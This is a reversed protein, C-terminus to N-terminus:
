SSPPLIGGLFSSFLTLARQPQYSPVTHGAGRVTILLLGKYAELYGGVEKNLYWPRWSTEIPLNLANISYRSSTVPVVADTDGCVRDYQKYIEVVGILNDLPELLMLAFDTISAEIECKQFTFKSKHAQRYVWLRQGNAILYKIIPLITDPSDNWRTLVDSCFDWSTPKVHFAKQVASDNLYSVIIYKWCPDFVDISGTGSANRLDPNLCIPAYINYIDINGTENFAKTMSQNCMGTSSDNVFNCYKFVADHTADSNIAHTWWHDYRGKACTEDDIWANGIAIGKMKITTQNTNKNNRLITYALQPVYHGAYSEGTIYFDRTKYQPFRELWNVIFIYADAATNKDGANDYDSTTNSYSFGVGAPSELFLINALNNWSYNNRFLTKGDSNIRFPGLETMAGIMSSCGPGGNLWLVLPKTSSDTPSEVFYYFLARGASQNVTVYGSYQDFDVGEPQGPLTTIKDHQAMGEQPGIYVPSYDDIAEESVLWTDRVPPNRSQKAKLLDLLKDEQIDANSLGFLVLFCFAAIVKTMITPVKKNTSTTIYITSSVNHGLSRKDRHVRVTILVLGKYAELYGGVEKNLYWPRWSTEIPLNLTNISYRSSTIPVRGDTDGSCVDWSTPKVHLAKQVASDNLYSVLIYQWCPDFIDISGTSGSANRLDPNLCIPAYINYIDIDGKEDFAKTMSQSCIGTSSDNVFNCYKFIADHTADSNIAHSWWYDFVGKLGTIEDIWANGIAIGKINIATQNTKKNKLLISYALQPVYHGAYSEGTIYFDRTKYKPFRELWNVIFVYADDATNKDGAHDYDSTTNSYSFGVGAPSELFLINAVNSWAYNNRFLTKGDSNIRFPGLETMAGIMSSCGPGGNLWLVLPKTSSDTPSEVFYYFLARGASPNVTVYGSYQDFDVGAPQGPLTSIKDLQAMGEQPQVYVPSYEDNTDESVSWTDRVPPNISRKTKLLEFLKNAQIDANILGVLALFCFAAVVTKM